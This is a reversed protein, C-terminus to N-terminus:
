HPALGFPIGSFKVGNIDLDTIIGSIEGVTQLWDAQAEFQSTAGVTEGTAPNAVPKLTLSRIQNGAHVTVDISRMAIRVFHEAHADLMYLTLKGTATEHLLELNFQHSGVEVLLGGHPAIHHHVPAVHNAPAPPRECSCLSVILLLSLPYLLSRKM